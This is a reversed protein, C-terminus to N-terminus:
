RRVTSSPRRAEFFLSNPKRVAGSPDVDLAYREFSPIDSTTPQMAKADIYSLDRLLEAMSVCDYGWKHLEGSSQFQGNRYTQWVKTTRLAGILRRAIDRASPRRARGADPASDSGIPQFLDYDHGAISSRIFEPDIHRKTLFAALVGGPKNRVMQEFLNLRAWEYHERSQETRHARFDELSQLYLRANFELDPVVVRLVGGDKLVRRSETMVTRARDATLHEIFHASYVADFTQHAFPLGSLIDHQIVCPDSSIFDLNNWEPNFIPGCGLNLLATGNSARRVPLLRM